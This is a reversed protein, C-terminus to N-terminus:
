DSPLYLHHQYIYQLVSPTLWANFAHLDIQPKALLTRLVTSSLNIALQTDLLLFGHTTSQVEAVTGAVWNGPVHPRANETTTKKEPSQTCLPPSFSAIPVSPCNSLSTANNENVLTGHEPRTAVCLHTYDSLRQWQHWTHLQHLQDIGMLWCLSAENGFHTRLARLTDITYSPGDRTVEIDSVTINTQSPSIEALDAALLTTMALRHESSRVTHKQWSQGSPIFILQDLQLQSSFHAALALHGRHPPDFTGGLLGIRPRRSCLATQLHV